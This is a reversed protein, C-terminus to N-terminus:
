SCRETSLYAIASRLLEPDDKFKGLGYNCESCLMGRPKGTQHDHDVHLTGHRGGAEGDRVGCINCRDGFLALAEPRTM